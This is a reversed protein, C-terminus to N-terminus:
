GMAALAISDVFDTLAKVKPAAPDGTFTFQYICEVDFAKGEPPEGHIQIKQNTVNTLTCLFSISSFFPERM